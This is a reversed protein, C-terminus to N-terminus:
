WFQGRANALTNFKDVNYKAEFATTPNHSPDKQIPLGNPGIM